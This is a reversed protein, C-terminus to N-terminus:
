ESYVRVGIGFSIMHLRHQSELLYRAIFLILPSLHLSRIEKDVFLSGVEYKGVISLNISRKPFLDILKTVACM